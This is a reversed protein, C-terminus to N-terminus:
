QRPSTQSGRCWRRCSCSIAVAAALVGLGAWTLSTVPTEDPVLAVGSGTDPPVPSQIAKAVEEALALAEANDTYGFQFDLYWMTKGDTM